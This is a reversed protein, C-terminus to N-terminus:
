HHNAENLIKYERKVVDTYPTLLRSCLNNLQNPISLITLFELSTKTSNNAVISIRLYLTNYMELKTFKLRFFFFLLHNNNFIM